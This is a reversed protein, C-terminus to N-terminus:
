KSCLMSRSHGVFGDNDCSLFDGITIGQNKAVTNWKKDDIQEKDVNINKRTV